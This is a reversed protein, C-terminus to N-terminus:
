GDDSSRMTAYLAGISVPVVFAIGLLLRQVGAQPLAAAWPFLLIAGVACIFACLIGLHTSSPATVTPPVDRADQEASSTRRSAIGVLVICVLLSLALLTLSPLDGGPM